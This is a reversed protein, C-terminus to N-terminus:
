QSKKRIEKKKKQLSFLETPWTGVLGFWIGKLEYPDNRIPPKIEFLKESHSMALFTAIVEKPM